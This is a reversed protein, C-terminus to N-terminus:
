IQRAFAICVIASDAILGSAIKATKQRAPAEIIDVRREGSAM